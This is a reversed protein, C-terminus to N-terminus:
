GLREVECEPTGTRAYRRARRQLRERRKPGVGSTAELAQSEGKQMVELARDSDGFREIVNKFIGRPVCDGLVAKLRLSELHEQVDSIASEVYEVVQEAQEDTPEGDVMVWEDCLVHNSVGVINWYDSASTISLGPWGPPNVAYESRDVKRHIDLETNIGGSRYTVEWDDPLDVTEAIWGLPLGRETEEEVRYIARSCDEGGDTVLKDGGWDDRDYGDWAHPEGPNCALPRHTCDRRVGDDDPGRNTARAHGYETGTPGVTIKYGCEECVGDHESCTCATLHDPLDDDTEVLSCDFAYNDRSPNEPLRPTGVKTDTM